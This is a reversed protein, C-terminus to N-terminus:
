ATSRPNSNARFFAGSTAWMAEVKEQVGANQALAQHALHVDAGDSDVVLYAIIGIFVKFPQAFYSM